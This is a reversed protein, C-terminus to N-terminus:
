SERPWDYEDFIAADDRLRVDLAKNVLEGIGRLRALAARFLRLQTEREVNPVLIVLGPHLEQATYLSRFDSANNTVLIMDRALALEVIQWDEAGARGIHALHYAEHGLRQALYVLAPSLCEDILFRV